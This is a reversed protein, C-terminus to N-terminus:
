SRQLGDAEWYHDEVKEQVHAILSKWRDPTVEDFALHTLREVETLTFKTNHTWIFHKMQSWAMEIPNLECHAVPLRVIEHGTQQAAEDVYYKEYHMKPSVFSAGDGAKGLLRRVSRTSVGSPSLFSSANSAM